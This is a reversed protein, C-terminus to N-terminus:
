SPMDFRTNAKVPRCYSRDCRYFLPRLIRCYTLPLRTAFYISIATKRSSTFLSMSPNEQWLPAKVLSKPLAISKHDRGPLNAPNEPVEYGDCQVSFKFCRFCFPREEGCKVRRQKCTRCGTKREPPGRRKPRKVVPISLSPSM